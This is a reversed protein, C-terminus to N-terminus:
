ASVRRANLRRGDPPQSWSRLPSQREIAGLTGRWSEVRRRQTDLAPYVRSAQLALDTAPRLIEEMYIQRRLQLPVSSIRGVERSRTIVFHRRSDGLMDQLGRPCCRERCGFSTKMGRLNFFERAQKVELFAGLEQLYVRPPAAFPKKEKSPLRTLRGMDFSEGTTIGSEIGGVAGFALLAIGVTGTKEAVLPIGLQHLDQCAAIFGRLAVPGSKSTGFPHVRLWVSDIPSDKLMRIITNRRSADRFDTSPLALPYYIPVNAGGMADLCNRLAQTTFSDVAVWRDAASALYHTPALVASFSNTMVFEAIMKATERSAAASLEDAKKRAASAWPLSLLEPRLEATPTALEMIRTDLVTEVGRRLAEGRLEQQPKVLAPNFAIGRLGTLGETLAQALVLHDSRGPRLYLALPAEVARLLRPFGKGPEIRSNVDM